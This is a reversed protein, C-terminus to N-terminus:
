GLKRGFGRAVPASAAAARAALHREFGDPGDHAFDATGTRSWGDCQLNRPAASSGGALGVVRTAELLTILQDTGGNPMALSIAALRYTDTTTSIVVFAQSWVPVLNLRLGYRRLKITHVERWDLAASRLLKTIRLSKDDFELVPTARVMAAVITGVLYFFGVAVLLFPLFGDKDSFYFYTFLSGILLPPVAAIVLKPRSYYIREM